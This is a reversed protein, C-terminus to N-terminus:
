HDTTDSPQSGDTAKGFMKLLTNAYDVIKQRCSEVTPPESDVQDDYLGYAALEIGTVTGNGYLAVCIGDEESGAPHRAYADDNVTGVLNEIDKINM